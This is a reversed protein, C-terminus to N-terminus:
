ITFLTILYCDLFVIFLKLRCFFIPNDKTVKGPWGFRIWYSLPELPSEAGTVYLPTKSTLLEDIFENILWGRTKNPTPSKFGQSELFAIILEKDPEDPFGGHKLPKAVKTSLYENVVHPFHFNSAQKVYENLQKM